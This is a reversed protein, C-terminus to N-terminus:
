LKAKDTARREQLEEEEERMVTAVSQRLEEALMEAEDDDLEERQGRGFMTFSESRRGSARIEPRPILHYHMHPVVQAAAAGNNQVVNWDVVGTARMSAKSLIRLYHGLEAAESASVDPSSPATRARASSCTAPPQPPPHRPIRHPHAYLPHHLINAFFCTLTIPIIIRLPVEMDPDQDESLNRWLRARHLFLKLRRRNPTDHQPEMQQLEADHFESGDDSAADVPHSQVEPKPKKWYNPGFMEVAYYIGGYLSFGSHYATCVRWLTEETKTPFHFNWGLVFIVSFGILVIAAGPAYWAGPCIWMDSPYRDWLKTTIPRSILPIRMRHALKVYYNWHADIGFRKRSIFDVPTRYWTKSLDPHTHQKAYARIEAITKGDRTEIFQPKSISPKNHWLVSTMFMIFTFSLATLELTTMPYGNHIRALEQIVFWLAQLVALVRSLSDMSNREEIEMSEMDPFDVHNHSVLYHLQEANIPFSQNSKVSFDPATLHVCGMDVFFAHMLKWQFGNTLHKDRKFAKVSKRASAYQGLAIGFLFDPGLLSIMALNFKDALAHYWKDLPSGANPYTSVWCCLLITLNSAWMIDLTGRDNGSNRWGYIQEHHSGNQGTSAM